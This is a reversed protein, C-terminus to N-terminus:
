APHKDNSFVAVQPDALEAIKQADAKSMVAYWIEEERMVVCEGEQNGFGLVGVNTGAYKGFCVVAGAYYRLPILQGVINYRGQGLAIIVGYGAEAKGIDPLVLGGYTKTVPPLKRVLVRDGNMAIAADDKLGHTEIDLFQEAVKPAERITLATAPKRAIRKAVAATPFKPGELTMVPSNDKSM